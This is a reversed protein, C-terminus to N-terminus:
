VINAVEVYDLDGPVPVRVHVSNVGNYKRILRDITASDRKRLLVCKGDREIVDPEVEVGGKTMYWSQWDTRTPQEPSKVAQPDVPQQAPAVNAQSHQAKLQQAKAINRERAAMARHSACCTSATGECEVDCKSYQCKSM